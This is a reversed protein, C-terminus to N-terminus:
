VLVQLIGPEIRGELYGITELFEGDIQIPWPKKITLTCTQASYNEFYAPNVKGQLLEIFLSPGIAKSFPKAVIVEFYGDAPDGDPNIILDSGYRNGNCLAVAVAEGEFVLKGDISLKVAAPEFSFYCRLLQWGYSALTRFTSEGYLQVVLANLGTDGIHFCLKGNIRIADIAKPTGEIITKLAAQIDLPLGLDKALGNGSGYGIIGLPLKTNVLAEAALRVTGDGGVAVVADYGNGAIIAKLYLDTDPETWLISPKTAWEKAEILEILAAKDEGGAVPNIVFLYKQRTAM